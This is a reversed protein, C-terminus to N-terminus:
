DLGKSQENLAEREQRGRKAGREQMWDKCAKRKRGRAEEKKPSETEAKHIRDIQTWQPM